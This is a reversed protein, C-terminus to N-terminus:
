RDRERDAEEDGTLARARVTPCSNNSCKPLPHQREEFVHQSKCYPCVYLYAGYQHGKLQMPKLFVTLEGLLGVAKDGRKELAAVAARLKTKADTVAQAYTDVKDPDDNYAQWVLTEHLKKILEGVDGTPARRGDIAETVDDWLATDDLGLYELIRYYSASAAADGTPTPTLRRRLEARTENAVTLNDDDIHILLRDILEDDTLTTLDAM